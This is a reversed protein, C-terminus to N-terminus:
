EAEVERKRFMYVRIGLSCFWFLFGSPRLQMDLHRCPQQSPGMHRDRFLGKPMEYCSGVRLSTQAPEHVTKLVKVVQIQLLHNIILSEEWVNPKSLRWEFVNLHLYNLFLTAGLTREPLNSISCIEIPSHTLPIYAKTLIWLVTCM